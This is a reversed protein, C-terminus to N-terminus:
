IEIKSLEIIHLVIMGAIFAIGMNSTALAIGAIFFAVFFDKKETV